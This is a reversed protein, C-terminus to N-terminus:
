NKPERPAPPPRFYSNAQLLLTLGAPLFKGHRFQMLGLGLLTTSFVSNLDFEGGSLRGIARDMDGVFTKVSDPAYPALDTEAGVVIDHTAKLAAVLQAPEEYNHDIILSGTVDSYRVKHVQALSCVARAADSLRLRASRTRRLRLRGDTAHALVFDCHQMRVGTM